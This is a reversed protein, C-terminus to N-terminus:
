IKKVKKTKKYGLVFVLKRLTKLAIKAGKSIELEDVEEQFLEIIEEM